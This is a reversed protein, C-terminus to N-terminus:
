AHDILNAKKLAAIIMPILILQLLIGPVANLLAGGIFVQWSFANGRLGYIIVSVVGWVVRGLIMAPILARFVACGKSSVSRYLYGAALGYTALEFSMAVAVPVMPPMTFILSRFVPAILGVLLGYPWGCVFGCLLVPIHMPLLMSGVQPIQGTFFPLLLCLALFLGSLALNRVTNDRV